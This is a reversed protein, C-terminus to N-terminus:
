LAQFSHGGALRAFNEPLLRESLFAGLNHKQSEGSTALITYSGIEVYGAPQQLLVV